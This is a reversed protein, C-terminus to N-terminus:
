TLISGFVPFGSLPWGVVPGDPVEVAFAVISQAVAVQEPVTRV